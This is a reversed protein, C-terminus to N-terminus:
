EAATTELQTQLLQGFREGFRISFGLTRRFNKTRSAGLLGFVGTGSISEQSVDALARGVRGVLQVTNPDLMGSDLLADFEDSMIFNGLHLAGNAANHVAESVDVGKEVQRGVFEDFFDVVMAVLGPMSELMDAASALAPAQDLIRGLANMTQPDTLRELLPLFARLREDIDIGREQAKMAYYDATDTVTAVLAPAQQSAETLSALSAELRDLRSSIQELRDLIQQEKDRVENPKPVVISRNAM